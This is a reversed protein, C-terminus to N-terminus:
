SGGETRNSQGRVMDREQRAKTKGRERERNSGTEKAGARGREKCLWGERRM